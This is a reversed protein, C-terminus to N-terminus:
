NAFIKEQLTLKLSKDYLSNAGANPTKANISGKNDGMIQSTDGSNEHIKIHNQEAAIEEEVAAGKNLYELLGKFAVM